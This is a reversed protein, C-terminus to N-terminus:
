LDLTEGQALVEYLNRKERPSRHPNYRDITISKSVKPMYPRLPGKIEFPDIKIPKLNQMNHRIDEVKISTVRSTAPAFSVSKTLFSKM